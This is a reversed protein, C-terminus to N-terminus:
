ATPLVSFREDPRRLALASENAFETELAEVQAGAPGRRCAILLASVAEGPGAVVAEVSRDRLNRVWGVLGLREAEDRVFARYGVGQVLGTIRVRVIREHRPM